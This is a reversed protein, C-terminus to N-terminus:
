AQRSQDTLVQKHLTRLKTLKAFKVAVSNSVITFVAVVMGRTPLSTRSWLPLLTRRGVCSWPEWIRRWVTIQENALECRRKYACCAGSRLWPCALGAEATASTSDYLFPGLAISLATCKNKKVSINRPLNNRSGTSDLNQCRTYAHPYNHFLYEARWICYHIRKLFSRKRRAETTFM